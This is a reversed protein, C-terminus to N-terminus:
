SGLGRLLTTAVALRRSPAKPRAPSGLTGKQPSPPIVSHYSFLGTMSRAKPHLAIREWTPPVTLISIKETYFIAAVCRRAWVAAWRLATATQFRPAASHARSSSQLSIFFSTALSIDSAVLQHPRHSKFGCVSTSAGLVLADAMGGRGCFGHGKKPSLGRKTFIIKAYFYRDTL